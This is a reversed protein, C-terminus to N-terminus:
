TNEDFIMDLTGTTSGPTSTCRGTMSGTGNCAVLAQSLIDSPIGTARLVWATGTSNAETVITVIAGVGAIQPIMINGSSDFTTKPIYPEKWTDRLDTGCFSSDAQTKDYLAALKTPYCSTDNKFNALAKGYDTMTSFLLAGKSKSLSIKPVVLAALLGIIAVVVMMELLTFGGQGPMTRPKTFRNSQM